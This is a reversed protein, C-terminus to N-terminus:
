NTIPGYAPWQKGSDCKMALYNWQTVRGGGRLNAATNCTAGLGSGLTTIDTWTVGDNKSIYGFGATNGANNTTLYWCASCAGGVAQIPFNGVTNSSTGTPFSSGTDTILTAPRTAGTKPVTFISSTGAVNNQRVMIVNAGVDFSACNATFGGVSLVAGPTGLAISVSTANTVTMNNTCTATIGSVSCTTSAPIGTTGSGAALALGSQGDLWPYYAALTITPSGNVTTGQGTGGWQGYVPMAFYSVTGSATAAVGLTVSTGSVAHITTGPTMGTAAIVQVDGGILNANGASLTASKSGSVTTITGTYTALGFQILAHEGCALGTQGKGDGLDKIHFVYTNAGTANGIAGRGTMGSFGTSPYSTQTWTTCTTDTSKYLATASNSIFAYCIGSADIDVQPSQTSLWSAAMATWSGNYPSTCYYGQVTGGLTSFSLVTAGDGAYQTQSNTSATGPILGSGCLETPTGTAGGNISASWIHNVTSPSSGSHYQWFGTKGDPTVYLNCGTTACSVPSTPVTDFQWNAKANATAGNYMPGVQATASVTFALAMVLARM